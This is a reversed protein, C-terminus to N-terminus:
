HSNPIPQVVFNNRFIASVRVMAELPINGPFFIEESNKQPVKLVEYM